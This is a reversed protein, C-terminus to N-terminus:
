ASGATPIKTLVQAGCSSELRSHLGSKELFDDNARDRPKEGGREQFPALHEDGSRVVGQVFAVLVGRWAHTQLRLGSARGCVEQEQEQDHDQEHDQSCVRKQSFILLLLM